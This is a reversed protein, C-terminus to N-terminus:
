SHDPIDKANLIVPVPANVVLDFSFAERAEAAVPLFLADRTSFQNKSNVGDLSSTFISVSSRAAQAPSTLQFRFTGSALLYLVDVTESSVGGSVTSFTLENTSSNYGALPFLKGSTRGMAVAMSAYDINGSQDRVIAVRGTPTVSFDSSTDVSDFSEWGTIKILARKGTDLKYFWGNPVVFRYAVSEINPINTVNSGNRVAEFDEILLVKEHMVEM